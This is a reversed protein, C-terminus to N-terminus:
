RDLLCAGHSLYRVLFTLLERCFDRADFREIESLQSGLPLKEVFDFRGWMQAPVPKPSRNRVADLLVHEATELRGDASQELADGFVGSHALWGFDHRRPFDARACDQDPFPATCPM